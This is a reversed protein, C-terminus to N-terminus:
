SAARRDRIIARPACQPWARQLNDPNRRSKKAPAADVGQAAEGRNTFHTRWQRLYIIPPTRSPSSTGATWSYRRPGMPLGPEPRTCGFLAPGCNPLKRAWGWARKDATATSGFILFYFM